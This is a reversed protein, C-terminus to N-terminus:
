DCNPVAGTYLDATWTEGASPFDFQIKTSSVYTITQELGFPSLSIVLKETTDEVITICGFFCDDILITDNQECVGQLDTGVINYANESFIYYNIEDECDSCDSEDEVQKYVNEQLREFVSKTPDPTTEDSDSDSCATLFSLFILCPILLLKKM